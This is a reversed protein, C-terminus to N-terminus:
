TNRQKRWKRLVITFGIIKCTFKPGLEKIIKDAWEQLEQKNRTSSKLATIRIRETDKNAFLLKLNQIFEQTLKNKGLQLNILNAM